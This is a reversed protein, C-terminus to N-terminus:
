HPPELGRAAFQKGVAPSLLFDLLQHAETRHGSNKLVVAGQLIPPYSDAPMEVYHGNAHLRESLASTLSILGAQANGSDVYQATQAINEAIVFKPKLQDYLGLKKLSAEAARGYPAHEPNAVALTKMAPDKLTDVSLQRFPSDNRTWLVLTGRAYAVPQDADALGESIVRQPFSFDAAMFLDFPAGNQIQTALTASSQYSADIHIHTQNEFQALIPPLVPQLDAAAALRLNQAAALPVLLLFLLFKYM